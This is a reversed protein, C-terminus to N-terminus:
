GDSPLLLLLPYLLQGHNSDISQWPAGNRQLYQDGWQLIVTDAGYSYHIRFECRNATEEPVAVTGKELLRLYNLVAHISEQRNYTRSIEKGERSYIVDVGTVVRNALPEQQKTCGCLLMLAFLVGWMRMM